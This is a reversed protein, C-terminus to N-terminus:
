AQRSPEGLIVVKEKSFSTVPTRQAVHFIHGTM